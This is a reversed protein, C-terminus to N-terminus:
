SMNCRPKIKIPLGLSPYPMPRRTITEELNMQSWEYTKVFNHITTLTQVRAFENGICYHLGAGFPIYSFPPISKTRNEFRSPDFKEPNEFIDKNM